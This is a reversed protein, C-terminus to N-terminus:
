FPNFLDEIVEEFFNAYNRAMTERSFDMARKRCNSPYITDALKIGNALATIDNNFIFGSRGEEVIEPVSGRNYALVPTGTALAELMVLGFPEEWQIPFLLARARKYLKYKSDGIESCYIVKKDSDIIERMSEDPNKEFDIEMEIHPKIKQEFYEIDETKKQIPGAIVIKYGAKKAADIAKDQGKDPTIRGICFVYDEKRTEYPIEDIKIGNYIVREVKVGRKELEKKHAQSIAVYFSGEKQLCYRAIDQRNPFIHVTNVVPRTIRKNVIFDILETTHNHIIDFDELTRIREFHKAYSQEQLDSPVEHWDGIPEVTEIANHVRSGKACLTYTSMRKGKLKPLEESLGLIIKEIPSYDRSGIPKNLPAIELVTYMSTKTSLSQNKM